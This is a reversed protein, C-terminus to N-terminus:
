ISKIKVFFQFGVRQFLLNVSKKSQSIIQLIQAETKITKQNIQLLKDGLHLHYKKAEPMIKVINLNKDFSIGLFELFTDSLYGGGSRKHSKAQLTLLKANRKIKLKHKSHLKSFLIWRMLQASSKVKKGDFELICDNIQLKNDAMFPNIARVIVLKKEDKVRIGIDSYAVKKTHIFHQIYAKEIIGEPTVIGQLYCCSNLILAPYPLKKSFLAFHNLGIQHKKINGKISKTNTVGAIGLIPRNKMRFPYRFGKKDEVLYLSLFPDHKLIKANPKTHSFIVRTHKTIPINTINNSLTHSDLIKKKCSAYGSQCAYLNLFLLTLIIFLRFM